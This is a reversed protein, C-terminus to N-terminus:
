NGAPHAIGLQPAPQRDGAGHARRRGPLAAPGAPHRDRLSPRGAVRQVGDVAANVLDHGDCWDLRPRLAGSELRTQDLLNNVLRNLRRTATRIEEALDARPRSTRRRRPEGGGLTLVALPTKLEHSVGDLLTRHLKDSEALLKEREGAARLQEREVLQALQAAFSDALDRQALTLTAEPPMRLILVGIAMDERVLPLHFGEASPLTDTFRGAKKRNRWAWDAVGREKETIVFSGAFHPM